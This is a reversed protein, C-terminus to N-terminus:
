KNLSNIVKELLDRIERNGLRELHSFGLWIWVRERKWLCDSELEYHDGGGRFWGLDVDEKGDWFREGPSRGFGGSLTEDMAWEDVVSTGLTIKRFYFDLDYM